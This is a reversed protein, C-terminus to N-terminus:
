SSLIVPHHEAPIPLHKAWIHGVDLIEKPGSQSRSMGPTLHATVDPDFTVWGACGNVLTSSVTGYSLWLPLTIHVQQKVKAATTTM